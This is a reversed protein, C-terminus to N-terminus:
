SECQHYKKYYELIVKLREYNSDCLYFYTVRNNLKDKNIEIKQKIEDCLDFIRCQQNYIVKLCECYPKIKTINDSKINNELFTKIDEPKDNEFGKFNKSIYSYLEKKSQFKEGTYEKLSNTNIERIENKNMFEIIEKLPKNEYKMFKMRINHIDSLVKYRKNYEAEYYELDKKIIKRELEIQKVGDEPNLELYKWKEHEKLNSDLSKLANITKEYGNGSDFIEKRIDILKKLNNLYEKSLYPENKAEEDTLDDKLYNEIIYLMHEPLYKNKEQLIEFQKYHPAWQRKGPEKEIFCKDKLAAEVWAEGRDHNLFPFYKKYLFQLEKLSIGNLYELIDPNKCTESLPEDITPYKPPLEVRHIEDIIIIEVLKKFTDINLLPISYESKDDLSDKFYEMTDLIYKNVKYSGINLDEPYEIYDGKDIPGKSIYKKAETIYETDNTISIMPSNYLDLFRNLMEPNSINNYDEESINNIDLSPYYKKFYKIIINNTNM